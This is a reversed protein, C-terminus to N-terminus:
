VVKGPGGAGRDSLRCVGGPCISIGQVYAIADGTAVDQVTKKNSDLISADAGHEVLTQCVFVHGGAAALHLSTQKKSNVANM